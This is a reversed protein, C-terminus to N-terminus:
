SKLAGVAKDFEATMQAIQARVEPRASGAQDKAQGALAKEIKKAASKGKMSGYVALLVFIFVVLATVAIAPRFSGILDPFVYCVAWALAIFILGFIYKLM